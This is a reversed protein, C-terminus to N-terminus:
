MQDIKSLDIDMGDFMNRADQRAHGFQMGAMDPAETGDLAAEIGKFRDM